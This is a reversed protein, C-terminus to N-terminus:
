EIKQLATKEARHRELFYTPLEYSERSKVEIHTIDMPSFITGGIKVFNARKVPDNRLRVITSVQTDTAYIVNELGNMDRTANKLHIVNTKM